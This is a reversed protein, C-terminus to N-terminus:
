VGVGVGEDAADTTYVVCPPRAPAGGRRRAPAPIAAKIVEVLEGTTALPGRRRARVIARAISRAWREEGYRHILEALEDENLGNVLHYATTTQQLPDMRMDLPADHQYSFGRAPDDLQPSSVGLDFLFGNVEGVGLEDLAVALDSFNAHVVAVRDKFPALRQRVAAVAYPDRDIAVLRGSPGLAAAVAAAHGGLGATCDVYVGDGRVRLAEVVENLLVPVHTFATPVAQGGETGKVPQSGAHERGGRRLRGRGGGSLRALDRRGM